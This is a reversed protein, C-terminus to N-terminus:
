ELTERARDIAQVLRGDELEGRGSSIYRLAATYVDRLVHLEGNVAGHAAVTPAEAAEGAPHELGDALAEILDTSTVIGTLVEGPAVVPLAHLTGDALARAADLMTATQPLVVVKRQMVESVRRTELSAQSLVETGLDPRLVLAKVLDHASIMGVVRGDEVVPVHHCRRERM